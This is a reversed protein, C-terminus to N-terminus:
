YEKYCSQIPVSHFGSAGCEAHQRRLPHSWDGATILLDVHVAATLVDLFDENEVEDMALIQLRLDRLWPSGHALMKRLKDSTAVLIDVREEFTRAELEARPWSM